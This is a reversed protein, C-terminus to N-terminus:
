KKKPVPGTYDYILKSQLVDKVGSASTKMRRTYYRQGDVKEFGWIMDVIWDNKNKAKDSVVLNQVVGDAEVEPEWGSKLFTDEVESLPLRRSKSQVASFIHDEHPRDTWDLIRIETTGKIGGTLTQVVDIHEVGSEDTYHSVDLTVTALSIVKRTAWAVNQLALIAEVSDSRTKNLTYRGSFNKTTVTAPAAM